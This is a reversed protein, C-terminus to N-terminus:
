ARGIQGADVVQNRDIIIFAATARWFFDGDHLLRIGIARARNTKFRFPVSTRRDRLSEDEIRIVTQVVSVESFQVFTEPAPATHGQNVASDGAANLQEATSVLGVERSLVRDSSCVDSSWDSIRM